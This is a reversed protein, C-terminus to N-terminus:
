LNTLRFLGALVPLPPSVSLQCAIGCHTRGDLSVQVCLKQAPLGDAADHVCPDQSGQKRGEARPIGGDVEGPLTGSGRRESGCTQAPSDLCSFM